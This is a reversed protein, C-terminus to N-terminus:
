AQAPRLRGKIVKRTPTLPMEAIIELREPWKVKAIGLSALWSTIEPLTLAAGPKLVVYACAREGLVPDPVPAIACQQVAPM